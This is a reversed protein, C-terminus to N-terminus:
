AKGMLYKSYSGFLAEFVTGNFYTTGGYIASFFTKKKGKLVLTKNLNVFGDIYKQGLILLVDFKIIEVSGVM